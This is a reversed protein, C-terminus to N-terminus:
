ADRGGCCAFPGLLRQVGTKAEPHAASNELLDHDNISPVLNALVDIPPKSVESWLAFNAFHRKRSMLHKQDREQKNKRARPSCSPDVVENNGTKDLTYISIYVPAAGCLQNFNMRVGPLGPAGCIEWRVCDLFRSIGWFCFTYVKDESLNDVTERMANIYRKVGDTRCLGLGTFDGKIDPEEGPESVIFQDFAWFPMVFTPPEVEGSARAPDDGLSHYFDGVVTRIAQVLAMQIQRAIGAVHVYGGLVLGFYLNKKDEPIKKFRLQFRVEWLRKRGALRSSFSYDRSAERWPEHTPKHIIHVKAKSLDSETEMSMPSNASTVGNSPVFTWSIPHTKRHPDWVAPAAQKEADGANKRPFGTVAM